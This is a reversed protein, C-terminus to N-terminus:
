QLLRIITEVIDTLSINATVTDELVIKGTILSLLLQTQTKADLKNTLQGSQLCKEILEEYFDTYWQWFKKINEQIGPHELANCMSFRLVLRCNVWQGSANLEVIKGIIQRLQEIPELQTDISEALHKYDSIVEEFVAECIAEKSKFYHYFAGKTMGSATLIDDLTTVEVGHTSYLTKAAQLLRM